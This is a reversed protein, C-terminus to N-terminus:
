VFKPWYFSSSMRFLAYSASFPATMPFGRGSAVFPVLRAGAITDLSSKLTTLHGKLAADGLEAESIGEANDVGGEVDGADIGKQLLVGVKGIDAGVPKIFV